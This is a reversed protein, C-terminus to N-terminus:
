NSTIIIIAYLDQGNSYELLFPWSIRFNIKKWRLSVTRFRDWSLLKKFDERLCREGRANLVLLPCLTVIDCGMQSFFYKHIGERYKGGHGRWFVRTSLIWLHSKEQSMYVQCPGGFLDSLPPLLVPQSLAGHWLSVRRSTDTFLSFLKNLREWVVVWKNWVYVLFCSLLFWM